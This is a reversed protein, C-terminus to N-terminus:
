YLWVYGRVYILFWHKFAEWLLPIHHHRLHTRELKLMLLPCTKLMSNEWIPGHVYSDTVDWYKYSM